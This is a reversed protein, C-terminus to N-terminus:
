DNLTVEIEKGKEFFQVGYKQGVVVSFLVSPLVSGIKAVLYRAGYGKEPDLTIRPIPDPYFYQSTHIIELKDSLVLFGDHFPNKLSALDKLNESLVSKELHISTGYLPSIPLKEIERCVIIGLGAFPEASDRYIDDLIKYLKEKM